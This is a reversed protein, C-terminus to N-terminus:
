KDTFDFTIKAGTASDVSVIKKGKMDHEAFPKYVAEWSLAGQSFMILHFATAPRPAQEHTTWKHITSRTVGLLACLRARGVHEIFEKFTMPNM